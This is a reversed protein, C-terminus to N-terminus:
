LEKRAFLIVDREVRDVIKVVKFGSDKFLKVTLAEDMRFKPLFDTEEHDKIAHYGLAPLYTYRKQQELLLARKNSVYPYVKDLLIFHGNPKLKTFITKTLRRKNSWPFNHLVYSSTIVDYPEATRLYTYEDACIYNVKTNYERLNKKARRVMEASEDVAEIKSM